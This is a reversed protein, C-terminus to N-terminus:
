RLAYLRPFSLSCYLDFGVAAGKGDAAEENIDGIEVDDIEGDEDEDEDEDGEGRFFFGEELFMFALFGLMSM